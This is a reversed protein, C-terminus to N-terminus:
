YYMGILCYALINVFLNSVLKIPVVIMDAGQFAPFMNTIVLGSLELPNHKLAYGVINGYQVFTHDVSSDSSTVGTDATSKARKCFDLFSKPIGKSLDLAIFKKMESECAFQPYRAVADEWNNSNTLKVFNKKLAALQKLSNAEKKLESLSIEGNKCKLLLFIQEQPELSRIPALYQQKFEPKSVASSVKLRQDKLKVKEFANMVDLAVDWVAKPLSAQHLIADRHTASIDQMSLNM